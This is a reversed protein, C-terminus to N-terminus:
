KMIIRQLSYLTVLNYATYELMVTRSVTHCNFDHVFLYIM